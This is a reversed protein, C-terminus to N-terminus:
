RATGCAERVLKHLRQEDLVVSRGDDLKIHLANSAAEPAKAAAEPRDKGDTLWDITFRAFVVKKTGEAEYLCGVTGDPM